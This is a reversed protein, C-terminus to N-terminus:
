PPMTGLVVAPRNNPTAIMSVPTATSPTSTPERQEPDSGLRLAASGRRTRLLDRWVPPGPQGDIVLERREARPQDRDFMAEAIERLM